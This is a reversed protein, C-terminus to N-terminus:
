ETYLSAMQQVIRQMRARLHPPDVIEAREGYRLIQQLVRWESYASARVLVRKREQGRQDTYIQEDEISQTLWRQSLGQKALSADLWFRFEVPHRRREGDIMDPAEKLTEGKIRDIRYELFSSVRHNYAILYFHGEMYIIYYPDIQDHPVVDQRGQAPMYHFAIQQRHSIAQIITDIVTRSPLYDVVTSVDFYLYPKRIWREYHRHQEPPLTSVLKEILALMDKTFPHVSLPQPLPLSPDDKQFRSPDAFMNYLLALSDVEQETFLFATRPGSGREIHYRV